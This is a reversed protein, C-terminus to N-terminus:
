INNCVKLLTMTSSINSQSITKQNIYEIYFLETLMYGFSNIQFYIQSYIQFNQILELNILNFKIINANTIILKILHTNKICLL